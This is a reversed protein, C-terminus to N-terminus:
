PGLEIIDITPPVGLRLPLGITGIGPTVFLTGAATAYPGDWWPQRTARRLVRETLWPLRIQGGHTHGALILRASGAPMLATTDPQHTLVIRRGTDGPSWRAIQAQPDGGWLDDLGALEWGKFAVRRGELLVVGHGELAARLAAALPPGPMGTDHNGLVAFVPVGVERWVALGADLDLPPDYTWDGAVFVADVRQAGLTHVLRRQMWGRTFLGWHIDAVLAIRLPQAGPPAPPGATTRVRLWHPEVLRAWTGTACGLALLLWVLREIWRRSAVLGLGAWVTLLPLCLGAWALWLKFLTVTDRGAVRWRGQLDWAALPVAALLLAAALWGLRRTLREFAPAGPLPPVGDRRRV